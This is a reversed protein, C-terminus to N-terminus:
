WRVRYGSFFVPLPYNMGIMKFEGTENDTLFVNAENFSNWIEFYSEAPYGFFTDKHSLRLDVRTYSSYRRNNREEVVLLTDNGPMEWGTYAQGATTNVRVAFQWENSMDFYNHWKFAWPRHIAYNYWIDNERDRRKSTSLEVSAWGKWTKSPDYRFTVESGLVYGIGTNRFVLESKSLASRVDEEQEPPFSEIIIEAYANMASDVQSRDFGLSQLLSDQESYTNVSTFTGIADWIKDTDIEDTRRLKVAALDFYYKAYNSWELRYYDNFDHSWEANLHWAKESTLDPNFHRYYFEFENQAYLGSSFSLENKADLQHLWSARPLITLEQSSSEYEMRGGMKLKNKSDRRYEDGFYVGLFEQNRKGEYNMIVREALSMANSLYTDDTIVSGRTDFFGIVQVPDTSGSMIVEYQPRPINVNYEQIKHDWAAGFAFLHDDDYQYIHHSRLNYSTKELDLLPEGDESLFSMFYTQNQYAATNKMTWKNNVITRMNLGHIWNPIDVLALTDISEIVKSPDSPDEYEEPFLSVYVDNAYLATYEINTNNTFQYNAGIEMDKFNPLEVYKKYEELSKSSEEDGFLFEAGESFRKIAWDYIFAQYSFYMGFKDKVVPVGIYANGRLFSVDAVAEITDLPAPKSEMFIAGSLSGNGEVPFAGSYFRLNDTTEMNFISYASLVHYPQILPINNWFVRTESEDGGRVFPRVNLDSTSTVGPLTKIVRLPDGQVAAVQKMDEQKITILSVEKREHLSEREAVVVMETTQTDKAVQSVKRLKLQVQTLGSSDLQYNSQQTIYLSDKSQIVISEQFPFELELLGDADSNFAGFGDIELPFDGLPEESELALTMVILTHSPAEQVIDSASSAELSISSSSTVLSSIESSIFSGKESSSLDQSWAISLLCILLYRM